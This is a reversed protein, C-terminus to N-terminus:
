PPEPTAVSPRCTGAAGCCGGGVGEVATVVFRSATLLEKASFRARFRRPHDPAPPPMRKLRARVPSEPLKRSEGTSGRRRSVEILHISRGEAHPWPPAWALNTDGSRWVRPLTIPTTDALPPGSPRGLSMM